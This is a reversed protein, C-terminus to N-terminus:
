RAAVDTAILLTREGSKFKNLSGLRKVQPMQGHLPIAPFGMQRLLIALRQAQACTSVFIIGTNGALSNLTHALYVDKHAHPIFLYYQLLTSVTTYKTDVSVKVPDQLSARQLKAVKSTMTASFLMTTREKPIVELLKDIAPGFDMNLLRDAEDMILYRLGRLNFGKTNELHDLLRGPSAVIIHPKKALAIAQSMM